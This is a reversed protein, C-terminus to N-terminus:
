CNLITVRRAVEQGRLGRAGVPINLMVRPGSTSADKGSGSDVAVLHDATAIM